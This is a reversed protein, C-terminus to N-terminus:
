VEPSPSNTASFMMQGTTLTEVYIYIYIRYISLSICLEKIINNDNINLNKKKLTLHYSILWIQSDQKSGKTYKKSEFVKLKNTKLHKAWSIQHLYNWFCM